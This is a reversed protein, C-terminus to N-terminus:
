HRRAPERHVRPVLLVGDAPFVISEHDENWRVRYREHGPAGVIEIVRGRRAAGGHIGRAELQDGVRAEVAGAHTTMAHETPM